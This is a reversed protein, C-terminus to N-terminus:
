ASMKLIDFNGIFEHFLDIRSGNVPEYASSCGYSDFIRTFIICTIMMTIWINDLDQMSIHDQFRLKCFWFTYGEQGKLWDRIKLYDIDDLKIELRALLSKAAQVNEFLFYNSILM